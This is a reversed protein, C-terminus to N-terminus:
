LGKNFFVRQPLEGNQDRRMKEYASPEFSKLRETTVSCRQNFLSCGVPVCGVFFIGSFFVQLPANVFRGYKKMWSYKELRMMVPPILTMCPTVILLRSIFVQLIGKVAAYKSKGVEKNSEDYVTVGDMIENQRMLPINVANAAAVAAFPVFRQLLASASKALFAKLGLATVLASTTATVYAFMIKKTDSSSGPANTYNVIANFSQNTWQWFVVAAPSRYFTVMCGCLVMGGPVQFSMRGIVNQLVGTDPHFASLTAQQARRYDAVTVGTPLNQNKSYYEVLDKYQYLTKTPILTLRTDTIWAYYRLRGQFKSLDWIPENLNVESGPTM